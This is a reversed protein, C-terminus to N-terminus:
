LIQKSRVLLEYVNGVENTSLAWIDIAEGIM